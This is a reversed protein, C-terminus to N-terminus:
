PPSSGPPDYQPTLAPMVSEPREGGTASSERACETLVSSAVTFPSLVHHARMPLGMGLLYDFAWIHRLSGRGVPVIPLGMSYRTAVYGRILRWAGQPQLRLNSPIM